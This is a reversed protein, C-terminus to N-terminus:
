TAKSHSFPNNSWLSPLLGLFQLSFPKIGQVLSIQIDPLILVRSSAHTNGEQLSPPSLPCFTDVGIVALSLIIWSLTLIAIILM